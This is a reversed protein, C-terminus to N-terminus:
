KKATIVRVVDRYAPDNAICCDSPTRGCRAM